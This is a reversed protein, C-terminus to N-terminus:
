QLQWGLSGLLNRQKLAAVQNATMEVDVFKGTKGILFCAFHLNDQAHTHFSTTGKPLQSGFVVELSARVQNM